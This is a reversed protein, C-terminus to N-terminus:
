IRALPEIGFIKLGHGLVNRVGYTIALKLNMLGKDTEDIIREEGYWKNFEDAIKLLFSALLDPSLDDAAKAVIWPYKGLLWILQKRTGNGLKNYDISGWDVGGAKQLVSNARAYTYLLYPASNEKMDLVKEYIFTLPKNPDSGALYFKIAAKAIEWAISKREDEGLDKRRKDVEEKARAYLESLIWDLTIIRYRRSSMKMGPVIVMEYIYTVLNEAERTYGMAYLALKLQTQPLRQEAGIINIVKDANFDRFKFLTYAIDKTTYLTTGDSRRLILPPIEGRISIGLKRRIDDNLVIKGVDLAEAGKHIMFYPSKRAEEVVKNVLSSWILDSEYDWKDFVINLQKLTKRIGELVYDVVKRVLRKAWEEGKEYAKMIKKIEEELDGKFRMIEESLKNFLEKDKEWLRSLDFTIEDQKRVLERYEEMLEEDADKTVRYKEEIDKIKEKVNKLEILLNTLAYLIGFWEDPKVNSPIDPEGALKYGLSVIAVQRGTDNIYFRTQVVHGRCKLLNALTNGLFANRAHGIHLPHIPNASTHEVVYRQPKDVPVNGYDSYKRISKIVLRSLYEPKYFVNVYSGVIKVDDVGDVEGRIKEVLRNAFTKIEVGTKKSFRAVVIGIDGLKPSPPETIQLLVEKKDLPVGYDKSLEVVIRGLEDVLFGYPNRTIM